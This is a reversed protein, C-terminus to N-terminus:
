FQFYIFENPVRGGVLLLLCVLAAGAPVALWPSPRLRDPGPGPQDAGAARRGGRALVVAANDVQLRGVGHAGAMGALVRAATAFDPSRFLVWGGLVFLLTLAWGLLRPM